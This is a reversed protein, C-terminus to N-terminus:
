QGPAALNNQNILARKPPPLQSKIEIFADVARRRRSWARRDYRLLRKIDPWAAEFADIEEREIDFRVGVPWPCRFEFHSLRPLKRIRRKKTETEPETEPELSAYMAKGQRFRERGLRLSKDRGTAPVAAPDSFRGVIGVIEAEILSHQVDCEAITWAAEILDPDDAGECIMQAIDAIPEYHVPNFRSVTSLGHRFANRSSRRKGLDTKPGRSKRGNLRNAARKRDSTM